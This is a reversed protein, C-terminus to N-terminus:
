DEANECDLKKYAGYVVSRCTHRLAVAGYKGHIIEATVPINVRYQISWEMYWLMTPGM